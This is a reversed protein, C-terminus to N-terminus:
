KKFVVSYSVDTSFRGYVFLRFQAYCGIYVQFLLVLCFQEIAALAICQLNYYKITRMVSIFLVIICDTIFNISFLIFAIFWYAFSYCLSYNRQVFVNSMHSHTVFTPKLSTQPSLSHQASKHCRTIQSPAVVGRLATQARLSTESM